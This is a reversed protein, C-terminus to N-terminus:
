FIGADQLFSAVFVAIMIIVALVLVVSILVGYM